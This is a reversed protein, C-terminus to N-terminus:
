SSNGKSRKSPRGDRGAGATATVQSNAEATSVSPLPRAKAPSLESDAEPLAALQLPPLTHLGYGPHNEVAALWYQELM